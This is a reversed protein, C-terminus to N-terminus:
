GSAGRQVEGTGMGQKARLSIAKKKDKAEKQKKSIKDFYSDPDKVQDEDFGEKGTVYKKPEQQKKKRLLKIEEQIEKYRKQSKLKDTNELSEIQEDEGSPKKARKSKKEKPKDVGYLSGVVEETDVQGALSKGAQKIIGAAAAKGQKVTQKGTELLEEGVAKFIKKPM